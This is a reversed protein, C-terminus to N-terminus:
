VSYITPLTLHTYSVTEYAAIFQTMAAEQATSGSARLSRQGGCSTTSRDAGPTSRVTGTRDCGALGFPAALAAVLLVMGLTNRTATM